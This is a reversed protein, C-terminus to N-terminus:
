ACTDWAAAVHARTWAAVVACREPAVRLRRRARRLHEVRVLEIPVAVTGPAGGQAAGLAVYTASPDFGLSGKTWCFGITSM